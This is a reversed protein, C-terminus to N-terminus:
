DQTSKADYDKPDVVLVGDADAFVYDGPKIWVDGICVDINVQGEGRRTSKRPTSGLAKIGIDLTQLISTDRVCGYVILGEWEHQVALEALNDGLIACRQSGGGDVILVKDKGNTAVLEKIRSNDEFCKVTVASGCFQRRGYDKWQLNPVRAATDLFKDYLDCTAEFKVM